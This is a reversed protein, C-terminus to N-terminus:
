NGRQLAAQCLRKVLPGILREPVGAYGLHLGRMVGPGLSYVSLPRANIGAAIIRRALAQDDRTDAPVALQMGADAPRALLMGGAHKQLSGVMIEQRDQYRLRMRRVHRAFHGDELFRTLAGQIAPPVFHGTVRLALRFKEALARPVILYGARIGPVMTKSFTGLYIVRGDRDMGQLAPLPRGRYRYESDYDDEIVLAGWQAARDLLTLRRAASMTAGTPYQHSPTVYILRPAAALPALDLNIGDADAPVPILNAGSGLFAARAGLYGPDEVIIGDGPDLLLRATLDLGAQAGSVIIVQDEDANVGRAAALYAAIARRLAPEGTPEDYGLSPALPRRAAKAMLDAWLTHPFLEVAPLGPQFAAMGPVPPPARLGALSAGRKSLTTASPLNAARRDGPGAALLRDPPLAAVETGAGTRADVYGEAALQEYAAIVTNRGVGLDASLTRTAPLRFGAPFRGALIAQRLAEYLQVQLPAPATRDLPLLLHPPEM